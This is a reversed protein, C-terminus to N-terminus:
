WKVEVFVTLWESVLLVVEDLPVRRLLLVRCGGDGRRALAAAVTVSGCEAAKSTGDVVEVAVDKEGGAMDGGTGSRM